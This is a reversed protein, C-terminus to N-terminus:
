IETDDPIVANKPIVVIGDRIVYNEEEMDEDGEHSSIVVHRGIRANKDIIAREIRTDKGIGIDPRGIQRNKTLEGESEYNDAGMMVVRSLRAGSRVVSRLGIISEEIKADYLRCGDAIVARKLHCGRIRSPPLFRSRTFIPQKPDYFDFSPDPKTLAINAKYFASITGIDEWYGDFLFGYVNLPEIASPIIHKGFDDGSIEELLSALIDTKFVYIGMSALYPRKGKSRELGELEEMGKPKEKFAIIRGNDDTKLIGYLPSDKGSVPFIGVTVDAQKERHFRIFERYDMRYLHDGALILVDEPEQSLFRHIQRRVSDATGLYWDTSNHTQEAPLLDVFGESFSDFKYTNYIHRHLSASLFQTLIYIRTIGSNICNSIPIDILRYKGALPVAPKARLKTLPYLRIGRGGGLIIAIVDKPAM